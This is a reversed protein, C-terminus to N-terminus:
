KELYDLVKLIIQEQSSLKQFIIVEDFKINFFRNKFNKIQLQAGEDM